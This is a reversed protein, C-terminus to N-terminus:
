LSFVGAFYGDRTGHDYEVIASYLLPSAIRICRLVIGLLPRISCRRVVETSRQAELGVSGM